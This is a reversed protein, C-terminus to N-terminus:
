CIARWDRVFSRSASRREHKYMPCGSIMSSPLRDAGGELFVEGDIRHIATSPAFATVGPLVLQFLLKLVYSRDDIRSILWGDQEDM